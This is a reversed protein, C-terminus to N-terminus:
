PNDDRYSPELKAPFFNRPAANREPPEDREQIHPRRNYPIATAM